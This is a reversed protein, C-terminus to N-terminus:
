INRIRHINWMAVKCKMTVHKVFNLNEDLWSGLYKTIKTREVKDDIVRIGSTECKKVQQKSGLFILETKWANMKLRNKNMWTGINILCTEIENVARQEDAEDSVQFVKQLSHDDVFGSINIENPICNVLTSSYAYVPQTWHM